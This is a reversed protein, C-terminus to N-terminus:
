ESIRQCLTVSNTDDLNADYLHGMVRWTGAPTGSYTGSTDSYRLNSGAVLTGAPVAVGASGGGVICLAYSGISGLGLAAIKYAGNHDSWLHGFDTADVQARLDTGDFGIYVTNTLQGAGGGQRVPTFGLAKQLYHVIGDAANRFYPYNTDGSAFGADTISDRNVKGALANTITTAFNPDNGLAASLENLTDLAAPSSNILAAIAAMVYATSAIQTTNTGAAATPTTPTGSLAPSVLPAKTPDFITINATGDFPVGNITRAINLKAARDALGVLDGVLYRVAVDGNGDRVVIAGPTNLSTGNLTAADGLQLAARASSPTTGLALQNNESWLRGFATADVQFILNGNGDYGIMVKNSLMGAGGGQQVPTFGLAPEKTGDAIVINETGDFPVGNITRATELKSAAAALGELDGYIIAVAVHGNGDRYMVTGPVNTSSYDRTSATGLGLAEIVAALGEPHVARSSDEGDLTEEVTALEVVGAVETTAPPNIFVVDGFTLTDADLSELVIDVALLLTSVSAKEIIWGSASPQSYVAVLTGSSSFLGFEGVDYADGGEDKVTVHITDDAVVQGGITGIRKIEGQLATQSKSPAYQGTGVGIQSIVVPGTGTNQANVIEARGVDTITIQLAM